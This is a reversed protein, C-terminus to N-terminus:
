KKKATTTNHMFVCIDGEQMVYQKGEQRYKGAEKVKAMSAEGKHLAKFDSFNCVEAKIFGREFDSHITGAAQPALTGKMITWARVEKPGATYFSQLCLAQRGARILRPVMSRIEAQPGKLGAAIADEKCQQLFAKQQDPMDKLDFLNQEFECSVPIIQGGGHEKVWAGIKPLWKSGKRLFNKQSLNIVYIQPKTTIMGWDKILDVETMSFEGTQIPTNSEVLKTCKEHASTFVDSLQFNTSQRSLGKEKRVREKEREVVGELTAADKACLEGQITELDRIPDVSDDVHVVEDDDFARVLHYIGDVAAIHSLFANGLGAGESAGKILGAIDTVKLAAPVISPPKWTDALYKFNKDPVICQVVNPDITCFPQFNQFLLFFLLNPNPSKSFLLLRHM